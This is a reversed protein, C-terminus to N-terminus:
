LCFYLPNIQPFHRNFIFPFPLLLPDLFGEPWLTPRVGTFSSLFPLLNPYSPGTGEICKQSLKSWCLPSRQHLSQRYPLRLNLLFPQGEDEKRVAELQCSGQSPVDKAVCQPLNQLHPSLGNIVACKEAMKRKSTLDSHSVEM